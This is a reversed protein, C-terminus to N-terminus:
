KAQSSEYCRKSIIIINKTHVPSINPSLEYCLVHMKHSKRSKFASTVKFKNTTTFLTAPDFIDCKKKECDKEENRLTKTHVISLHLIRIERPLLPFATKFISICIIQQESADKTM